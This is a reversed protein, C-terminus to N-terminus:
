ENEAVPYKLYNEELDEIKYFDFAPRPTWKKFTEEFGEIINECMKRASMMSEDSTVWERAADGLKNYENADEMKLSYAAALQNAVDRFDCRDDFIYPTPPSGILSINSPFVPFAFKGAKKYKGLHNSGFAETFKIWEGNEDEFRMQDQMGGTVNALIPTGAMMSETLALGWGENSSILTTLDALNYYKNLVDPAVKQNSFYINNQKKGFLMEVVKPLDTGNDDVPDTHLILSCKDAQQKPLTDVFTKFALILDSTSKRRLNRANYFVIFDKDQNNLVQKKFEKFDDTTKDLPYFTKENIGHPVYKITKNKAKDGLVVRNINETQKSIALLTDCSEYFTKNYLPYPLDDWINLYVIPVLQRIEREHQWLWVWYRPDTFLMIADPKEIQIIQRVFEISGYGDTPYVFVSADEIGALKNTDSSVDIRQGKEPHNIAGGINIWNYQHSTGIVIEKSMTAIGSTFRIDDGMLLIKKRQEKPIYNSM